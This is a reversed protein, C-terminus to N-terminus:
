AETAYAMVQSLTEGYKRRVDALLRRRARVAELRAPDEAMEEAAHRLEVALEAVEAGAARLRAEADAWPARGALATIAAGLADAAGGDDTLAAHAAVRGRSQGPGGRADGRRKRASERRRCRHDGRRRHRGAPVQPPRGRPGPGPSRRRACRAGRRDPR